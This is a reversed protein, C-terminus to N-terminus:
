YKIHLEKAKKTVFNFEASYWQDIGNASYWIRNKTNLIIPAQTLFDNISTPPYKKFSWIAHHSIMNGYREDHYILDKYLSGAGNPQVVAVNAMLEYSNKTGTLIVNINNPEIYMKNGLKDTTVYSWQAIDMAYVCISSLLFFINFILWIKKLQLKM